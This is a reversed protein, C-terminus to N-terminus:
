NRGVVGPNVAPRQPCPPTANALAPGSFQLDFIVQVRNGGRILGFFATPPTVGFHSMLVPTRAHLHFQRKADQWLDMTTQLTHTIGALTLTGIIRLELHQPRAAAKPVVKASILRQFQYTIVPHRRAKLAHWIDHNMGSSEGHLSLVPISMRGTTKRWVPLAQRLAQGHNLKRVAALLATVAARHAFLIVKGHVQKSVVSWSGLTDTGRLNMRSTRTVIFPLGASHHPAASHNPGAAVSASLSLVCAMLLSVSAATIRRCPPSEIWTAIQRICGM